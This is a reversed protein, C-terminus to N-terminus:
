CNIKIRLEEIEHNKIGKEDCYNLVNNARSLLENLLKNVEIKVFYEIVPINNECIFEILCMSPYEKMKELNLLFSGEMFRLQEFKSDNYVIRKVASIWWDLLVILNDNWGREPFQFDNFDFYIVGSILDNSNVEITNYEIEIM